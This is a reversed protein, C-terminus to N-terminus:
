SQFPLILTPFVAKRKRAKLVIYYNSIIKAQSPTVTASPSHVTSWFSCTQARTLTLMTCEQALCNLQNWSIFTEILCAQFVHILEMRSISSQTIHVSWNKPELSMSASYDCLIHTWQYPPFNQALFVCRHTDQTGSLAAKQQLWGLHKCLWGVWWHCIHQTQFYKGAFM